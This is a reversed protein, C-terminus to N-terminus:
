QKSPHPLSGRAHGRPLVDVHFLAFSSLVITFRCKLHDHCHRDAARGAQDGHQKCPANHATQGSEHSAQEAPNCASQNYQGTNAHHDIQAQFRLRSRNLLRRTTRISGTGVRPTPASRSNLIVAAVTTQSTFPYENLLLTGAASMLQVNAACVSGYKPKTKVMALIQKQIQKQM